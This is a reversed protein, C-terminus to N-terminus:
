FARAELRRLEWLLWIGPTVDPVPRLPVPLPIRVPFPVPRTIRLGQELSSSIPVKGLSGHALFGARV